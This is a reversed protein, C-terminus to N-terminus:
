TLKPCRQFQLIPFTIHKDPETITDQIHSFVLLNHYTFYSLTISLVFVLLSICLSVSFFIIVLDFHFEFFYQLLGYSPLSVLSVFLWFFIFIVHCILAMIIALIYQASVIQWVHM